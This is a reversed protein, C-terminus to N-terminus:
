QFEFVDVRSKGRADTWAIDIPKRSHGNGDASPPSDNSGLRGAALPRDVNVRLSSDEATTQLVYAAARSLLEFEGVNINSMNDCAAHYCPDFAVGAEGGYLEAQEATKVQEAGTFLGGARIGAELFPGYDSRGDFASFEYPQNEQEFFGVFQDQLFGSGPSDSIGDYISTYFNPSGIMDFNLNIAIKNLEEAPLTTVYHESGL